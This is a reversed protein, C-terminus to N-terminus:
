SESLFAGPNDPAKKKQALAERLIRRGQDACGGTGKTSNLLKAYAAGKNRGGVSQSSLILSPLGAGRLRGASPKKM